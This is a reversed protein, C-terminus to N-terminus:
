KLLTAREKPTAHETVRVRGGVFVAVLRTDQTITGRAQLALAQAADSLDFYPCHVRATAATAHAFLTYPAPNM